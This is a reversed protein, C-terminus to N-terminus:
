WVPPSHCVPCQMATAGKIGVDAGGGPDTLHVGGDAGAYAIPSALVQAMRRARSLVPMLIAILLAIIALVILLEVLTFGSESKIQKAVKCWGRRFHRDGM